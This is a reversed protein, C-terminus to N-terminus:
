RPRRLQVLGATFPRPRPAPGDDEYAAHAERLARAAAARRASPGAGPNAELWSALALGFLRLIQLRHAALVGPAFRVGLAEFYEEAEGLGALEPLPASM